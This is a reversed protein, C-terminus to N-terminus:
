CGTEFAVVFDDFDFFDVMGDQNFDAVHSPDVAPCARGEYCSVFTDYDFFDLFGDLTSEAKAAAAAMEPDNMPIFKLNAPEEAVAM